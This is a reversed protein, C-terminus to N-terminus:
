GEFHPPQLHRYPHRDWEDSTDLIKCLDDNTVVQKPLASGSGIIKM